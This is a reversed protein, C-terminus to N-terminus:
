DPVTARVGAPDLAVRAPLASTIKFRGILRSIVSRVVATKRETCKAMLNAFCLAVAILFAVCVWGRVGDVPLGVSRTTAALFLTLPVHIAYLTYTADSFYQIRAVRKPNMEGATGEVAQMRGLILACGAILAADIPYHVGPLLVSGACFAGLILSFGCLEGYKFRIRIFRCLAGAIWVGFHIIMARNLLTLSLLAVVAAAFYIWRLGQKPQIAFLLMPWLAYYWMESSLSWLPDNSGPCDILVTQLAALPALAHRWSMRDAFSLDVLGPMHVGGSYLPRFLALGLYDLAVGFILAPVLVVYIRVSRHLVYRSIQANGELVNSLWTGGVLYGSLVFFLMVSQHGVRTVLELWQPRTAFVFGPVHSWVVAIAAIIRALNLM